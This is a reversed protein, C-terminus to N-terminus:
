TEAAARPRPWRLSIALCALGVGVADIAVDLASGHRNETFTQHYEDTAAYAIAIVAAAALPRRVSGVLAWWWLYTLIAYGAVHGFKRLAVEWWALDPGEFPQSSFYFIAAMMALPPLVRVFRGGSRNSAM